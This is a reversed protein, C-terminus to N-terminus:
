NCDQLQWTCTCTSSTYTRLSVLDSLMRAVHQPCDIRTYPSDTALLLRTHDPKSEYSDSVCHRDHDHHDNHHDLTNVPQEQAVNDTGQSTSGLVM